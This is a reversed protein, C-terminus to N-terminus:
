SSPIQNSLVWLTKTNQVNKQGGLWLNVRVGPEPPAKGLAVTQLTNRLKNSLLVTMNELCLELM